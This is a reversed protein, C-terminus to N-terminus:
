NHKPAIQESNTKPIHHSTRGKRCPKVYSQVKSGSRNLILGICKNVGFSGAKVCATRHRLFRPCTQINKTKLLDNLSKSVRGLINNVPLQDLIGGLAKGGLLGGGQGGLGTGLLGSNGGGGGLGLLADGCVFQM